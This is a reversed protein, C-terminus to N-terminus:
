INYKKLNIKPFLGDVIQDAEFREIKNEYIIEVTVKNVYEAYMLNNLANKYKTDSKTDNSNNTYNFRPDEYYDYLLTRTSHNTISKMNIKLENSMFNIEYDDFTKEGFHKDANSKYNIHIPHILNDILSFYKNSNGPSCNYIKNTKRNKIFLVKYTEPLNINEYKDFFLIYILWDNNLIAFWYYESLIYNNCGIFNDFWFNSNPEIIDNNFQGSIVKGVLPNDSAWENPGNTENMNVSVIKNIARYRSLLSPVTTNYDDIFLNMQLINKNTSIYLKMTNNNFNIEQKYNNLYQIYLIDNEIYTVYNKFDIYIKDVETYKTEHNYYYILLNGNKTFKNHRNLTCWITYKNSTFFYYLYYFTIDNIDYKMLETLKNNNNAGLILQQTIYKIEDKSQITSLNYM